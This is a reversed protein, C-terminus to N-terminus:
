YNQVVHYDVLEWEQGTASIIKVIGVDPAYFLDLLDSYKYRVVDTFTNVPLLLDSIDILSYYFTDRSLFIDNDVSYIMCSQAGYRYHNGFVRFDNRQSDFHTEYDIKQGFVYNFSDTAAYSHITTMGAYETCSARQDDEYGSLRIISGQLKVTDFVNLSDKLKYVWWSGEDFYWYKLFNRPLKTIEKCEKKCSSTCIVLICAFLLFIRKM